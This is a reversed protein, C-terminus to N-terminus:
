HNSSIHKKISRAIVVGLRVPVANGIHRALRTMQVKNASEAFRYNRPFSQILAAERLSIARNQEPHGYRGTGLTICHTTMTPGPTDWRMRGYVTSQYSKGTTKRHCELVLDSSWSKAGGGNKPTSRIRLKNKSSLKSARHLFDSKDTAGDKITPLHGIADRVTVAREKSHTEPILAIKGLRSALLVLRMRKQPVGYRSADVIRYDVEYGEKKLSAVFKGFIPYKKKDQLDKVNEMSVIEPKVARILEIFKELANWREHKKTFGVRNLNLSSFPQCPACGILIKVDAGTFMRKLDGATVEAIDKQFFTAGNNKEYAYKCTGDIDIGGVVEFGEQVFGHTMGGVGCFLDVVKARKKELLPTTQM